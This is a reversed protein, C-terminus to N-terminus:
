ALFKERSWDVKCLEKLTKVCNHTLGKNLFGLLWEDYLLVFVM